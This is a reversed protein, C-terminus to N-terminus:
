LQEDCQGTTLKTPAAFVLSGNLGGFGLSNSMVYDSNFPLSSGSLPVRFSHGADTKKTTPMPPVLGNRLALISIVAELAGSSGLLHGVAGKTSSISVTADEGFVSKLAELEVGDNAPTGTGHCNIYGIDGTTIGSGVLAQRMARVLGDSRPATIHYGDASLGSGSLIALPNAGRERAYGLDELVLMAAGDGMVMGKRDVDFPRCVDPSVARLANFGAYDAERVMDCGGVLMIPVDGQSVRQYGYTISAIGSVCACSFTSVPGGLNLTEALLMAASGCQSNHRIHPSSDGGSEAYVDMLGGSTTAISIGMQTREVCGVGAQKLAETAALLGYGACPFHRYPELDGGERDVIANIEDQQKVPDIIYSRDSRFLSADFTPPPAPPFSESLLHQWLAEVGRADRTLAGIGTVAVTKM